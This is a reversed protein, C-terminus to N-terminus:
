CFPSLLVIRRGTGVVLFKYSIIVLRAIKKNDKLVVPYAIIEYPKLSFDLRSYFDQKKLFAHTHTYISSFHMYIYMYM